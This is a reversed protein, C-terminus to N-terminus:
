RPERLWRRIEPWTPEKGYMLMGLEFIRGAVRRLALCTAVLGAAALVLQWAPVGALLLRVPAVTPATLPLLTLVVALGSDPNRIVGFAFALPLMPFLMWGGRSSTNPDDITAAVAAFFTFWMAFGLGSFVFLAALFAPDAAGPPLAPVPAGVGRLFALGALPPVVYLALNALTLASLGLIKGDIWAQPSIAAVVQETIRLQKEGTIGVLVYANGILVGLLAVGIAVAAVAGSGRPSADLARVNLAVPAWGAAPDLGAAAVASELASRRKREDLRAQVLEIWVPRRLSTLEAQGDGLRLVADLRRAVLAEHLAAPPETSAEWLFGPEAEGAVFEAAGPGTVAIRLPTAQKAVIASVLWFAGGAFAMTLLGLVVDKWRFFRMFEWRAVELVSRTM